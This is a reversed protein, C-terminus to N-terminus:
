KKLPIERILLARAGNANEDKRTSFGRLWLLEDGSAVVPWLKRQTGTIHREQLLEKVKKPSKTHAPWFSDGARWNRVRLETTPYQESVLDKPNLDHPNYGEGDRPVLSAEFCASAEPVEVRGPVPLLYDYDQEVVPQPAIFRLYDREREARWDRPLSAAETEGSVISLIDAVHRSELSFRHEAGVARIIRRQLARPMGRLEILDIGHHKRDWVQQLSEEVLTEWYAEEDRAIEATDALNERISPNLEREMVPLVRHRVRNRAMRFDQNSSDERWPQNLDKLYLELDARRVSLLPRIITAGHRARGGEVEEYKEPYIGALGRTGAGRSLKLLVTEAQDDLTHGTAIRSARGNGLLDAFFKYRLARAASEISLRRERSFNAADGRDSFYEVQHRRALDTVFHEDADSESGRLLHNFHVIALVIGLEQKLELLIRFLAVSDAGGSVAVGIRDGPKILRHKNIGDIAIDPVTLV